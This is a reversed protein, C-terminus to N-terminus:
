LVWQSNFFAGEFDLDFDLDFGLDFGLDFDIVSSRGCASVDRHPCFAECNVTEGISESCIRLM